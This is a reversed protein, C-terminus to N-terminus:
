YSNQTIITDVAKLYAFSGECLHFSKVKNHPARVLGESIKFHHISLTHGEVMECGASSSSVKILNGPNRM